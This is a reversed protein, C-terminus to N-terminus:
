VLKLKKLTRWRDKLQVNTRDTFSYVDKIKSWRGEGYKRVGQILKNTEEESWKRKKQGLISTSDSSGKSDKEVLDDEDTWSVTSEKATGILTKWKSNPTKTNPTSSNTPSHCRADASPSIDLATDMVVVGDKNRSSQQLASSSCPKEPTGNSVPSNLLEDICDILEEAGTETGNLWLENPDTTPSLQSSSPTGSSEENTSPSSEIIRCYRKRRSPSRVSRLPLAETETHPARCDGNPLRELRVSVQSTSPLTTEQSDPDIVLRASNICKGVSGSINERARNQLSGSKSQPTTGTQSPPTAPAAQHPSGTQTPPTAPASQHPSGTQKPSTALTTQHPSRMQKPPTAPTTQHPSRTQKPPTAPTTQHPITTQAFRAAWTGQPPSEFNGIFFEESNSNQNADEADLPSFSNKIEQHVEKELVSFPVTIRNAIALAQYAIELRRKPIIQRGSIQLKPNVVSSPGCEDSEDSITSLTKSQRDLRNLIERATKHLLPVTLPCFKECFASIEDKFQKFNIEGIDKHESSRGHIFDMFIEKKAFMTNDFHCLAQEARSFENNKIFLKVIMEKISNSVKTLDEQPIDIGDSLGELQLLASELPSMSEDSEFTMDLKEGENVRSLLQMVLVKRPIVNNKAVPRLVIRSILDRVECFEDYQDKKFFEWALSIYYDVLWRNVIPETETRQDNAAM